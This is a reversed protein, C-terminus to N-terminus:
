GCRLGSGATVLEEYAAQLLRVMGKVLWDKRGCEIRCGSGGRTLVGSERGHM